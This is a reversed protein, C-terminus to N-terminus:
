EIRMSKAMEEIEPLYRTFDVHTTVKGSDGPEYGTRSVRATIAVVKGNHSYIYHLEDYSKDIQRYYYTDYGNISAHSVKSGEVAFGADYVEEYWKQAAVQDKNDYVSVYVTFFETGNEYIPPKEPPILTAGEICVARGTASMLCAGKETIWNTPTKLTVRDNALRLVQDQAAQKSDSTNSNNQAAPTAVPQQQAVWLRWGVLCGVAVVGVILSVIAFSSGIEKNKNM